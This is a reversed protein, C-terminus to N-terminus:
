RPEAAGPPNPLGVGRLALTVADGPSATLRAGLPVASLAPGVSSGPLSFVEFWPPAARDAASPASM